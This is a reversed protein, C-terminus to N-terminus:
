RHSYCTWKFSLEDFISKEISTHDVHSSVVSNDNDNANINNHLYEENTIITTENSIIGTASSTSIDSAIFEDSILERPKLEKPLIVTTAM